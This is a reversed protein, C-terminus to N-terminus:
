DWAEDPLVCPASPGRDDSWDSAATGSALPATATAARRLRDNIARGLGTEPIPAVAIAAVEPRDLARLMAFLNAAAEALDGRPSLNLDAGDMDPGFGLLAGGPPQERAELRVPRNPAYHRSLMGPAQVPGEGPAGLPGVFAEIAEAPVGGARLLIPEPGLLAVITSELGVRCPGGDLIMSVREGLSAAVHEAATPSLAGSRNASPAAVPVGAAEILAQAVPHDPARIAISDLGATALLSIPSSSRRPLVLTLPGPWFREALARARPDIEALAAAQALGTVHCILPNFRPRDKAAFVAAVANGNTADCGLGYVTETAFAVLGGERILRAARAEPSAQVIPAASV